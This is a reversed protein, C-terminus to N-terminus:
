PCDRELTGTLGQSGDRRGVARSAHRHHRSPLTSTTGRALQPYREDLQKVKGLAGWRDYCNRANRLYMHAIAEFGRAAYFRAAVEHALARTRFLATKALPNFPRSTCVCLTPTEVKSAPSRPRCWIRAQRRLYTSLKRGVRATTGSADNTTRALGDARRCFCEDYVGGGDACHLLLLRAAAVSRSRDLAAAEGQRSGCGPEAYDGSLYRAKLKRIWHLCIM